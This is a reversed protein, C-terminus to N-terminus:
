VAGLDILYGNSTFTPTLSANAITLTLTTNSSARVYGNAFWATSTGGVSSTTMTPNPFCGALGAGLGAFFNWFSLGAGSSLAITGTNNSGSLTLTSALQYLHGATLSASFFATGPASVTGSGTVNTLVPAPTQWTPAAGTNAGLFQGTIGVMAVQGVASTGNGLLLENATFSTQGTGGDPVTVTGGLASGAQAVVWEAATNVGGASVCYVIASQGNTLALAPSLATGSFTEVTVAGTSLNIITFKFGAALTNTNPLTVTQTSSGTFTQTAASTALLPTTAGSTVISNYNNIINNSTMNSNADRSVLTSAANTATTGVGLTVVGNTASSPTAGTTGTSFTTVALTSVTSYGPDAGPGGSTLVQGLTGVSTATVANTGQGLVVGHATNTTNGTGGNPVVLTGSLVVPGSTPPVPTLGTTGGSVTTTVGGTGGVLANLAEKVTAGTVTSDNVSDGARLLHGQRWYNNANIEGVYKSQVNQSGPASM